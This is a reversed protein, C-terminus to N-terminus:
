RSGAHDKTSPAPAPANEAAAEAEAAELIAPKSPARMVTSDDVTKSKKDALKRDLDSGGVEKTKIEPAGGFAKPEFAKVEFTKAEYTKVEVSAPAPAAATQKPAPAAYASSASILAALSLAIRM